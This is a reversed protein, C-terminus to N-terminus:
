GGEWGLGGGLFFFFCACVCMCVVLFFQLELLGLAWSIGTVGGGGGSFIRVVHICM